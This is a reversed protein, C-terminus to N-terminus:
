INKRVNGDKEKIFKETFYKGLPESMGMFFIIIASIVQVMDKSVGAMTQMLIAGSRLIGFLFASFIIGFPHLIGLLAVAISDFGYGPSFAALLRYHVGCIEVGGALGGLLGSLMMTIVFHRPASIGVTEAAFRNKGVARIKYGLRSKFLLYYVVVALILALFIGWHLRTGEWIRIIKASNLIRPSAPMEDALAKMPGKVSVMYGTIKFAIYNLMITSIVEHVGFRAKLVGPGIGWVAGMLAAGILVIPLHLILPLGTISYGLFAAAMGGMAIQGEIGINFLGCRYALAFALGGFILPTTSLITEAICRKSGFAGQVLASYAEIPNNGMLLLIIVGIILAFIIATFAKIFSFAGENEFIIQKLNSKGMKM